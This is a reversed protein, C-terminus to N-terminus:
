RVRGDTQAAGQDSTSRRLQSQEYAEIDSLRYVVKGGLKVFAPGEGLWRWRELTRPSMGWRRSLEIQNM